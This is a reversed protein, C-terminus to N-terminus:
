SVAPRCSISRAEYRLLRTSTALKDVGPIVRKHTVRLNMATNFYNMYQAEHIYDSNDCQV